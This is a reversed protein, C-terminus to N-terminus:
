NDRHSCWPQCGPSCSGTELKVPDQEPKPGSGFYDGEPDAEDWWEQHYDQGHNVKFQTAADPTGVVRVHSKVERGSTAAADEAQEAILRELETLERKM